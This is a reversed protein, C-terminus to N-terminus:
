PLLLWVALSLVATFSLHLGFTSIQSSCGQFHFDLLVLTLTIKKKKGMGSFDTGLLLREPQLLGLFAPFISQYINFCLCARTVLPCSLLFPPPLMVCPPSPLHPAARGSGVSHDPWPSESSVHCSVVEKHWPSPVSHSFAATTVARM